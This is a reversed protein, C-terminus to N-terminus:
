GVAHFRVKTGYEKGGRGGIGGMSSEVRGMTRAMAPSNPTSSPNGASTTSSRPRYERDPLPPAGEKTRSLGAYEKRLKQVNAVDGKERAKRLLTALDPSSSTGPSRYISRRNTNVNSPTLSPAPNSTNSNTHMPTATSTSLNNASGNASSANTNGSAGDDADYFLEHSSSSPSAPPQVRGGNGNGVTAVSTSSSTSNANTSSHNPTPPVVTPTALGVAGAVTKRAASGPTQPLPRVTGSAYSRNAGAAPSSAPSTFPSSSDMSADVVGLQSMDIGEQLRVTGETMLAQEFDMDTRSIRRQLRDRNSIGLLDAGPRLQHQSRSPYQQPYPQQASTAKGNSSSSSGGSCGPASYPSSSSSQGQTYYGNQQHQRRSPQASM